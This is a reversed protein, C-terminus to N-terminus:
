TNLELRREIRELRDALQDIRLQQRVADGMQDASDRRTAVVATEVSGLRLKVDRFEEHIETRLRAVEDRLM